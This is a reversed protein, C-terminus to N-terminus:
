HSHSGNHSSDMHSFHTSSPSRALLEKPYYRELLEEFEHLGITGSNDEDLEKVIAGAEDVTVSINLADLKAKFEGISVEGSGDNDFMRFLYKAREHFSLDDEDASHAVYWSIFEDRSVEGDGDEDLINIMKRLDEESVDAGLNTMLDEFEDYSINGDGSSDFADFTKGVERLEVPDFSEMMEAVAEKDYEADAAHSAFRGLKYIFIFARIVHATKDERLVDAIFNPKRQAGISCVQTLIAVMHKKYFMTGVIPIAALVIYVCFVAWHQSEWMHQLYGLVFMAAYLGVFIVNIQLILIYFKPGKKDLWYLSEQRNPTGGIFMKAFWSREKRMFEDLDVHCWSPLDNSLSERKWLNKMSKASMKLMTRETPAFDNISANPDDDVKNAALFIAKASFKKRLRILHREFYVNYVLVVWGIFVWSWSIITLNERVALCFLYYVLTLVAFIAWTLERVEVIHALLNAMNL